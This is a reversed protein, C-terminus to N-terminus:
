FKHSWLILTQNDTEGAELAKQALNEAMDKLSQSSGLIAAIDEPLLSGSIGDSCLLLIDGSELSVQHVPLETPFEPCGVFFQLRSRGEHHLAVQPSIMKTKLLVGAITHDETIQTLQGTQAQYHLLPSDGLNTVIASNGIIAAVVLTSGGKGWQNNKVLRRIYANTQELAKVLVKSLTKPTVQATTEPLCNISCDVTLQEFLSLNFKRLVERSIEQGHAYGGMGDAIALM